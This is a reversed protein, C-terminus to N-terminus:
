FGSGLAPHAAVTAEDLSIGLGPTTPVVLEGNAIREAPITLNTRWPVEGWAYELFRM